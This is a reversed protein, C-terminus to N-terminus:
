NKNEPMHSAIDAAVAADIVSNIEEDDRAKRPVSRYAWVEPTLEVLYDGIETSYDDKDVHVIYNTDTEPLYFMVVVMKMIDKDTPPKIPVFRAKPEMLRSLCHIKELLVSM